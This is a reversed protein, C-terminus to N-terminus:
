ITFGQKAIPLSRLRKGTVAFIANCVAPAVLAVTPEGMGGPPDDSDILHVEIEPIENIRLLRYTDFNKEQVQGAKVNIEGFLAATLGFIIGGEAQAQVISPNVMQGCDVACVIRHIKLKGNSESIEAVQALYSGYGSMLAIGHRRGSPAKGWNAKRAAVDLVSRWRPQKSLLKRRFEYPDQKMADALEDMFSEV